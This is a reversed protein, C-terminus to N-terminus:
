LTLKLILAGTDKKRANHNNIARKVWGYFTGCNTANFIDFGNFIMTGHFTNVDFFMTSNFLGKTQLPGFSVVESLLAEEYKGNKNKIIRKDTIIYINDSNKFNVLSYIFEDPELKERMQSSMYGSKIREQEFKIKKQLERLMDVDKTLIENCSLCFWSSKENIAGCKPCTTESRFKFSSGDQLLVLEAGCYQCKMQGKEISAGCNPCRLVIIHAM